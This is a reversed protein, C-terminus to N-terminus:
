SLQNQTQKGVISPIRRPCVKTMKIDRSSLMTGLQEVSTLCNVDLIMLM